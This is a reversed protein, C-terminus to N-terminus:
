LVEDYGYFMLLIDIGMNSQTIPVVVPTIPVVILYGQPRNESHVGDLIDTNIIIRRNTVLYEGENTFISIVWSQDRSNWSAEINYPRNGLLINETFFYEESPWNIIQM